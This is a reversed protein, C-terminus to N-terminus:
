PRAITRSCRRCRVINRRNFYQGKDRCSAVSLPKEGETDYTQAAVIAVDDAFIELYMYNLEEGRNSEKLCGLAYPFDRALSCDSDDNM